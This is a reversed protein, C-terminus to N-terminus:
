VPNNPKALYQEQIQTENNSNREESSNGSVNKMTMCANVGCNSGSDRKKEWSEIVENPVKV